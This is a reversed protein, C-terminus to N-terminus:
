GTEEINYGKCKLVVSQLYAQELTHNNIYDVQLYDKLQVM